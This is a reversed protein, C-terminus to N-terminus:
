PNKQVVYFRAKGTKPERYEGSSSVPRFSRFAVNDFAFLTGGGTWRIVVDSNELFVTTIAPPIFDIPITMLSINDVHHMGDSHRYASGICSAAPEPFFGNAFEFHGCRVQLYHDLKSEDGFSDSFAGLM